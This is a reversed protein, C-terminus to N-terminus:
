NSGAPTTLNIAELRGDPKRVAIRSAKGGTTDHVISYREVQVIGSAGPAMALPAYRRVAVAHTILRLTRKDFLRSQRLVDVDGVTGDPRVWFSLDIWQPDVQTLLATSHDVLDNPGLIPPAFLVQPVTTRHLRLTAIAKDVAGNDGRLAAIRATLLVAGERIPALAPDTTAAVRAIAAKAIPLYGDLVTAMAGYLMATRFLADGEVIPLAADHAQRTVKRYTEIAADFRGVAAYADGVRLRQTMVRADKDPLGDKLADLSDIEGIRATELYGNLSAMRANARQLDSVPVPLTKSFRANRSRAALLTARAAEYSGAGFEANAKAISLHIDDEPPCRQALCAALDAGVQELRPGVVVVIPNERTPLAATVSAQLLVVSMLMM